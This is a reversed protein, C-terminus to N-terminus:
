LCYVYGCSIVGHQSQSIAWVSVFASIHLHRSSSAGSSPLVPARTHQSVLLSFAGRSKAGSTPDEPSTFRDRADFFEDDSSSDGFGPPPQLIPISELGRGGGEWENAPDQQPHSLSRASDPTINSCLNYYCRADGRDFNFVCDTNPSLPSPSLSAPQGGAGDGSTKVLEDPEKHVKKRRLDSIVEEDDESAEPPSPLLDALRSLEAFCLSSGSSGLSGALPPSPSVPTVLQPGAGKGSRQGGSAGRDPPANQILPHSHPPPPVLLHPQAHRPPHHHLKLPALAAAPPVASSSCSLFDDEELADLSDSSPSTLVHSDSRCSDSAESAPAAEEGSGLKGEEGGSDCNSIEIHVKQDGQAGGEHGGEGDKTKRQQCRDKDDTTDAKEKDTNQRRREKDRRKRGEPDSSSRVRPRPKEDQSVQPVLPEMDLDSSDSDSGCRSVYGTFVCLELLQKYQKCPKVCKKNMSDPCIEAGEEASVRHKKTDETWPFVNLSPDVFLRCYGAILCSMDKAAVSELLLTIPKVPCLCFPLLFIM